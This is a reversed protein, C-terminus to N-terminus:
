AEPAVAVNKMFELCQPLISGAPTEDITWDGGIVWHANVVCPPPRVFIEKLSKFGHLAMLRSVLVPKVTLSEPNLDIDFAVHTKLSFLVDFGISQIFKDVGTLPLHEAMCGRLCLM